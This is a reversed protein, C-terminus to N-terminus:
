LTGCKKRGGKVSVVLEKLVVTGLLEPSIQWGSDWACCGEISRGMLEEIGVKSGV